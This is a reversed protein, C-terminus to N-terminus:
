TTQYTKFLKLKYNITKFYPLFPRLLNGILGLVTCLNWLLCIFTNNRRRLVSLLFFIPRPLCCVPQLLWPLNKGVFRTKKMANQLCQTFFLLTLLFFARRLIEIERWTFNVDSKLLLSCCLESLHDLYILNLYHNIGAFGLTPM